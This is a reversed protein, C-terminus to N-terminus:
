GTVYAGSTGYYIHLGPNFAAMPDHTTKTKTHTQVLSDFKCEDAPQSFAAEALTYIGAQQDPQRM